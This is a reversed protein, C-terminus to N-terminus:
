QALAQNVSVTKPRTNINIRHIFQGGYLEGGQLGTVLLKPVRKNASLTVQNTVRNWTAQITAAKAKLSEKTLDGLKYYPYNKVPLKFLKEYENFVANLWDFMLTNGNGYDVLNSQHFYHAWKKTTMMHRLATESEAALIQAYNRPTCIAGPVTCPDQGNNVFREHFIYNYEDALQVPDVTNFFINAPYRPLMIRDQRRGDNVQNMYHEVDQNPQSSDSALFKVGLNAAAQFLLPNAGQPYQVDDSQVDFM